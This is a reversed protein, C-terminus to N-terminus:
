LCCLETPDTLSSAPSSGTLDCLSRTDPSLFLISRPCACV